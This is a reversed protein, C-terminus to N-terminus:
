TDHKKLLQFFVSFSFCVSSISDSISISFPFWLFSLIYFSITMVLYLSPTIKVIAMGGQGDSRSREM